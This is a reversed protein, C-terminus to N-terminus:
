GRGHKWGKFKFTVSQDQPSAEGLWSSWGLRTHTASLQARQVADGRVIVTVEYDMSDNNMIDTLERLQDMDRGGPMFQMYDDFELPGVSVGFNGARDYVASGLSLNQGLGCNAKGLRNQERPSIDCWRGKLQEIEVNADDFHDSLLARLAAASRPQQTILGAYALLRGPRISEGAPLHDLSAGLLTLLRDSFYDRGASDYQVTHRYKEWVRYALSFLRHHFLDIFGRLLSEDDELRLLDETYYSPLPTSPGYLGMFTLEFLLRERGDATERAQVGAIDAVPFSMSLLPRFRVVEAEAPGQHGVKPADKHLGHLLRVAEYFSYQHGNQLLDSAVPHRTQWDTGAM